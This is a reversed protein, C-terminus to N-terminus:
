TTLFRRVCALAIRNERGRFGHGAGKIVKLHCTQSQDKPRGARYARSARIAYSLKVIPDKDGCVLLVPGTYAAIEGFPDMDLVCAPYDHGLKMPGCSVTEPINAPDFKAFMMRGKRADDPICLAPYFLVLGSVQEQLRAATLACVFGGQSCGMLYLRNKDTFALSKAYAIVALLDETETFVTMDTTKGDSKGHLCGGCFDFCFVAYGWGALQRAYQFVSQQNSMFGHCVVAIPLNGMSPRFMTGRIVLGDRVCTFTSKQVHM